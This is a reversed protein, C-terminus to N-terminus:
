FDNEIVEPVKAACPIKITKEAMDACAKLLTTGRGDVIWNRHCPGPGPNYDQTGTIIWDNCERETRASVSPPYSMPVTFDIDAPPPCDACTPTPDTSQLKDAKACSCTVGVARWLGDQGQECKGTKPNTIKAPGKRYTCAQCSAPDKDCDVKEESENDECVSSQYSSEMPFCVAMAAIASNAWGLTLFFSLLRLRM